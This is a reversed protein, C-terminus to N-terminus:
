PASFWALFEDPTFTPLDLSAFGTEDRTVVVSAGANTGAEHLVADEYDEADLVLASRLVHQDVPAIAFMALLDDVLRRAVRSGRARATLYFVTTITTAGLLGHVHGDDVLSFLAAAPGAFPARALLVDLVVNTDILITM